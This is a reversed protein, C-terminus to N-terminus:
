NCRETKLSVRMQGNSLRTTSIWIKDHELGIQATDGNNVIWEVETSCYNAKYKTMEAKNSESYRSMSSVCGVVAISFIAPILKVKLRNM